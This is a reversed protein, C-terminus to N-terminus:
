PYKVAGLDLRFYTIGTPKDALPQNLPEDTVILTGFENLGPIKERNIVFLGTNVGGGGFQTVLQYDSVGSKPNKRVAWVALFRQVPAITTINNFSMGWLNADVVHLNMKVSSRPEDTTMPYIKANPSTVLSVLLADRSQYDQLVAYNTRYGRLQTDMDIITMLMWVILPLGFLMLVIAAWAGRGIVIKRQNQAKLLKEQEFKQATEEDVPMGMIKSAKELVGIVRNGGGRPAVESAFRSKLVKNDAETNNNNDATEPTEEKELKDMTQATQSPLKEEETM